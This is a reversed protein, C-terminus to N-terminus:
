PTVNKYFLLLHGLAWQCAARRCRLTEGVSPGAKPAAAAADPRSTTSGVWLPELPPRAMFFFAGLFTLRGLCILLGLFTLLGLGLTRLAGRTASSESRVGMAPASRRSIPPTAMSMMRAPLPRILRTTYGRPKRHDVWRLGVTPVSRQM